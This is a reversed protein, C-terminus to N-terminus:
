NQQLSSIVDIAQQLEASSAQQSYSYNTTQKATYCFSMAADVYKGNKLKFGFTGSSVTEFPTCTDPNSHGNIVLTQNAEWIDIGNSLNKIVTGQSYPIQTFASSTSSTTSPSAGISFWIGFSNALNSSSSLLFLNESGNMQSASLATSSNADSYGVITWSAPYQISFGGVKSTYISNTSQTSTTTSLKTSTTATKQLDSVQKQLSSVQTNLSTVKKNLNDVKKHQWSYVFGVIAAVVLVAVYVYILRHAHKAKIPSNLSPIETQTNSVVVPSENDM